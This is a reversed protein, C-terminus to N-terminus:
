KGPAEMSKIHYRATFFQKKLFKELGCRKTRQFATLDGRKSSTATFFSRCSM